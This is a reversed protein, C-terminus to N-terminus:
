PVRVEGLPAASAHCFNPRSVASVSFMLLVRMTLSPLLLSVLGM